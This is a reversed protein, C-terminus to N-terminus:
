ELRQLHILRVEMVDGTFPTIVQVLAAEEEFNFGQIIGVVTVYDRGIPEEWTVCDGIMWVTGDDEVFRWGAIDLLDELTYMTRNRREFAEEDLEAMAEALEKQTFPRKKM